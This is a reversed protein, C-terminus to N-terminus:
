HCQNELHSGVPLTKFGLEWILDNSLMECRQRNQMIVDISCVIQFKYGCSTKGNSPDEKSIEHLKDSTCVDLSHFILTIHYRFNLQFCNCFPHIKYMKSVNGVLLIGAPAAQCEHNTGTHYFFNCFAYM